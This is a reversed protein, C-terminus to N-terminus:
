GRARQELEVLEDIHDNCAYYLMTGMIKHSAPKSCGQKGCTHGALERELRDADALLLNARQRMTRVDAMAEGLPKDGSMAGRHSPYSQWKPLPEQSRYGLRLFHASIAAKREVASWNTLNGHTHKRVLREFLERDYLAVYALDNCAPCMAPDICAEYEHPM